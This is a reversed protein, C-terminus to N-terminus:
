MPRQDANSLIEKMLALDSDVEGQLLYKHRNKELTRYIKAATERDNDLYIKKACLIRDKSSMVKRYLKIYATLNDDLLEAARDKRGTVMSLYALECTTEKAYIDIMEGRHDYLRDFMGYAKEIEGTDICRTAELLPMAVELSNSYDIDCDSEFWEAPMDKPRVGNQIMANAKLQIMISRKAKPNRRLMKMNSADNGQRLPLGNILIIISDVICFITLFVNAIANDVVILLVIGVALAILNAAVGGANYATTPIKEIPLDPPSMLCQGGTGAVNFKKIRIKGDDKIVTLNFIRFSVFGYGSMLGAALHGAEHLVTLVCVSVILSAIGTLTGVFFDSIKINIIKEVLESFSTDTFTIIGVGAILLGAVMGITLGGVVKFIVKLIDM